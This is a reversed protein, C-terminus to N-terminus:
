HTSAGKPAVSQEILTGIIARRLAEPEMLRGAGSDDILSRLLVASLEADEASEEAEDAEGDEGLACDLGAEFAKEILRRVSAKAAADALAAREVETLPHREGAEDVGEVLVIRGKSLDVTVAVLKPVDPAHPRAPEDNSPM